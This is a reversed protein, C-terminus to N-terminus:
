FFVIVLSITEDIMRSHRGGRTDCILRFDLRIGLTQVVNTSGIRHLVPTGVLKLTNKDLTFINIKFKRFM